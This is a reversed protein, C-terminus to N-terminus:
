GAFSVLVLTVRSCFVLVPVFLARGGERLERGGERGGERRGDRLERGGARGGEVGERGGAAGV